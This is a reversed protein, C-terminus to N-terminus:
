AVHEERPLVIGRRRRIDRRQNATIGGWIGYRERNIGWEACEALHPCIKCVNVITKTHIKDEIDRDPYYFEMGVEACAPNEYNWPVRM